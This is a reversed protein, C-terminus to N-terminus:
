AGRRRRELIPWIFWLAAVGALVLVTSASMRALVVYCDGAVGLALPLLALVTIRGGTQLLEEADEGAWVIRHLSAPTILPVVALAVSLLALGHLVQSSRPLKDFSAFSL